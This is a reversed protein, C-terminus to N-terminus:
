RLRRAVVREAHQVLWTGPPVVVTRDIRTGYLHGFHKKDGTLLYDAGAAVAAALIPADKAEMAMSVGHPLMTPDADNVRELRPLLAQFHSLQSGTLHPHLEKLVYPSTLLTVSSM